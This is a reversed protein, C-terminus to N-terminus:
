WPAVDIELNSQKVIALSCLLMSLEKRFVVDIMQM